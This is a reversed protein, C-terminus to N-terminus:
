EEIAIKHDFSSIFNNEIHKAIIISLSTQKIEEEEQIDQAEQWRIIINRM